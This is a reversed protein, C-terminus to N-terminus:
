VRRESKLNRSILWEIPENILPLQVFACFESHFNRYCLNRVKILYMVSLHNWPNIKLTFLFCKILKSEISFYKTFGLEKLCPKNFIRKCDKQLNLDSWDKMYRNTSRFQCLLLMLVFHFSSSFLGQSLGDSCGIM